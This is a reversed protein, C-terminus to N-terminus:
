ADTPEEVPWPLADAAADADAQEQSLAVPAPLTFEPTEIRRLAMRQYPPMDKGDKKWGVREVLGHVTVWQGKIDGAIQLAEALGSGAVVQLRKKDEAELVFGWMLGAPTQRYNGDVPAKNSYTVKGEVTAEFPEEHVEGTTRDVRSPHPDEAKNAVEQASAISRDVLIGLAAIARGWASTEANEVESGRTYPTSGPLVLWSYGVAPHTDEPSRYALARVMVRPVDDPERTLTVESTVLRGNAYLEYFLKIRDKVEVYDGLEFKKDPM